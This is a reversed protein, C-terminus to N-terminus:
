GHPGLGSPPAVDDRDALERVTSVRMAGELHLHLEVKPLARLDRM